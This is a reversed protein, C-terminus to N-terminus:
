VTEQENALYVADFQICSGMLDTVECRAFEDYEDTRIEWHSFHYGKPADLRSFQELEDFARQEQETIGDLDGYAVYCTFQTGITYSIIETNM